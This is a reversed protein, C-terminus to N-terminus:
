QSKGYTYHIWTGVAGTNIVISVALGIGIGLANGKLGTGRIAMLVGLADQLISASVIMETESVAEITKHLPLDALGIAFADPANDPDFSAGYIIVRTGGLTGGGGLFLGKFSGGVLAEVVSHDSKPQWVWAGFAFPLKIGHKGTPKAILFEVGGFTELDVVKDRPKFAVDAGLLGEVEVELAKSGFHLKPIPFSGGFGIELADPWGGFLLAGVGLSISPISALIGTIAIAVGLSAMDFDTGLPDTNDVPNAGAYLYHHLTLPNDTEGDIPDRSVFRGTRPDMDRARLNYLGTAPDLAQGAFQYPNPNTGTHVITQGFADYYYRDTVAGAASTLARVSGLGDDQIYSRDGGQKESILGLGVVYSSQVAGGPAYQELVQAIPVNSDVLNRVEVGDTTTSVLNGDADYQYTVHHTGTADAVDAASLRNRADWLYIAKDVASTIRSLTSGNDDYTFKTVNGVTTETLLRDDQDYTSTTTGDVSDVRQTRNGVPDYTYETTRNGNVPDTVIEEIVRDLLDYHYDVRRGNEQVDADRRGTPGLIYQDRTILVGGATDNEISTLRNLLDYSRTQTSGDALDTTLLNGAADYTYRTVGGDPDTVTAMRNVSDFTYTTTGAPTTVATRRGGADYTYSLVTGDPNTQSLLRDHADYTYRTVGRADTVTSRMGTPTYTYAITTGDALHETIVRNNTDYTDQTTQGDFDTSAVLNGVLDYTMTSRQGLPLVTATRRGGGDYEYRTINGNADTQSVLDGLEDYTYTTRQHLPDVVTTLHNDVDYVYQTTRGLQDTRATVNGAADYTASVTTGDALRMGVARGLVDYTTTTVHGPPDTVSVARGAADYATTTVNGAADTVTLPHGADDYTYSTTHGLEDTRSIVRGAADYGTQLRPNDTPDAPTSDPEIVTVGRNDADYLYQTVRGARDTSSIRNGAADYTSTESTGDPYDTEILRGEPDYKLTTRRGLPDIEATRLGDSNYEYSTRAGTPDTVSLLRGSGGYALSTTLPRPGSPTTQTTTQTLINGDGDYTYTTVVGLPDVQQTEHGSADYEHTTVGGRPNTLSTLNGAADYAYHTVNGAADTMTTLNGRADYTNTTTNGLPDTTTLVEGLGNYTNRTVKGLPDTTTLVRGAADYTYSTTHGFPDTESLLRNQDDFTRRTVNGLADIQTVINGRQDYEYTTPNGLADTVSDTFHTPDYALTVAKGSTNIVNTLRGQDDYTSKSGTRGLPDSVQDLYHPRDARYTLRTTNGDRDTVSTLDGNADYTYTIAHGAPDSASTIRGEPDRQFTVQEGSNSLIGAATFNLQNGNRDSVSELKGSLGDITYVIGDKTTLYFHGGFVPDAPNYPYGGGWDGYTGDDFQRLDASDVTLTDTVGPAAQFAPNVIGLFSGALGGAAQPAFAFSERRGGPVTVFVVTGGQYPNFLGDQEAGTLPVSSRLDTNGYELRWGYGFDGSRASDLTDYTRSVTIPIGNVPLSLDTFSLKFNGLKLNGAVNVTRDLAATHGGTNTASLHLDYSGNALLTPDLTGLVGSAPVTTGSSVHAVPNGDLSLVDIAYSALNGGSITGQIPTPATITAGDALSSIALSPAGTVTPDIVLLSATARGTNGAADTATAVVDFSGAHDFKLRALGNIDLALATGGVTLLESAVGVNDTAAVMFTVTDGIQAPNKDLQVQVTPAETDASVTVDFTQTDSLGRGDDVELAVHATGIDSASTAWTVRGVADIAMGQPGTVLRYTLPVPDPDSAKVDYRYTLGAAVSTVPASTIKPPQPVGLVPLTFQQIAGAGSPDAAEVAVTQSGKEDATPTWSVRGSSSDITMGAPATPLSFTLASGSPSTATVNYTYALGVTAPAPPTSTISPPAVAAGASVVVTFSQTAVGGQGDDVQVSVSQAGAQDAAPVWLILGSAPDITMQAPATPLSFTLADGDPSFARVPYTYLAGVNATTPATSTIMPPLGAARVTVTFSQTAVGGQADDVHVTVAQPGVQNAAPTWRITGQAADISMGAPAADLGWVLTEGQVDTAVANYAYARGVVGTLPPSSTVVPPAIAAMTTVTVTFDQTASDGQGDDVKVEVPNPGLQDATPKWTVRGGSDISMGVPATPLQIHLPLGNADSAQVAYLYTTGLRVTTGPKSTITPPMLTMSAVVPLNFSQSAQGGHGDDVLIAVAATGVQSTTPTWDLVGTSPDITMGAPNTTLQYSLAYGSADQAQVRYEYPLGAVAPGRPTSTIVPSTVPGSVTIDFAQLVVGGQDDQARILVHQVGAEDAGPTWLIIGNTPGIVMGAPAVPLDYTLSRGAPDFAVSEYIYRQGVSASGPPSTTFFPAGTANETNGFDVGPVADGAAITIQFTTRTSDPIIDPSSFALGALGATGAGAITAILKTTATSEDIAFLEPGGTGAPELGGILHDSADIALSTMQGAAIAGVDIVKKTTPDVLLLHAGAVFLTHDDKAALALGSLSGLSFAVTAAGTTTDITELNNSGSGIAYLVGGPAFALGTLTDVGTPGIPTVTGTSLDLRFLDEHSNGPVFGIAYAAQTRPDIALHVLAAGTDVLSVATPTSSYEAIEYLKSTTATGSTQGARGVAFLEQPTRVGGKTTQHWGTQPVEAVTYTGPALGTLAYHGQADTTASPDGPAFQGSGTQDIYVTWGQLGTGDPAQSVTGSISGPELQNGFNVDNVVQGSAVTVHAVGGPPGTQKWGPRPVEAVDYTGPALGTFAYAGSPATTTSPDGADLKGDHNQDIYVTWGSLGPELPVPPVQSIGAPVFNSGEWSSAHLSDSTLPIPQTKLSTGDWSLIYLGGYFEQVLLIDGVSNSFQAAPAGLIRGSGYDVGFFNENAPIVHIDEIGPIGVNYFTAKGTVDIGYFGTRNENPALINGALPGYRAPDNPITTVGELFDHVDAVLHPTGAANVRWVQGANTDVILDGGFVGTNDFQLGGRLLGQGGPLTVWPNLVTAGGNTIRVIQGTQGNGVFLDGPTFGGLNGSRATAIYVEDTFGAVNSFPAHTGDAKIEEFNRPQGGGYNVTAIISNDPEYYDLDIPNNFTTSIQTLKIPTPPANPAPPPTSAVGNRVGDSNLDDFVAGHIEGPLGQSVTLTYSQTDFGGRGDDVRVTVPHPGVDTSTPHWTIAGSSADITMGAPGQPLSFTLPDQDSDVATVPYTYPVPVVGGGSVQGRGALSLIRGQSDHDVVNLGFSGDFINHSFNSSVDTNTLGLTTGFATVTDGGEGQDAPTSSVVFPLFQFRGGNPTLHAGNDSEAMAYLGGGANLFKIIDASRADLINLEAQTLIGGFDSGIVIASYTTGLQDLAANLTSADRLDFDTGATYGSAIIGNVGDVHGGPPSIKAEVFLFKSVGRAVFPNYAPNMVFHIATKTIDQAGTTGPGQTAHFDPDHGTLFISGGQANQPPPLVFSTVPQSTIVPPLNGAQQGVNIAYTQTATGGHGDAVQLTVGTLGLQDESPTWSVLGSTADIDLGQPGTVVSFTLPDGDLDAATAQYTYPVGVAAAVVPTSTFVPPLNPPTLTTTVTFQQVASGGRGDDARIGVNHNGVDSSQPSWSVLGSAVDVSMGAPGTVLTYTLPDGDPDEARSAYRYSAGADAAVVPVTTFAPPENLEGFFVLDYTFRVGHPDSFALSLTGTTNGPNLAGGNILGTFDYYAIGDATTGAQDRVRVSPDSIHEVGVYLPAGVPYQGVNRVAVDGYVVGTGNDLSTRAYGATFSASVDALASLDPAGAPRAVGSVTLSAAATHGQDDTAQVHIPNQGPAVTLTTFYDGAADLAEVQTGNVTVSVVRGTGGPSARGSALVTQGPALTAGAAPTAVSVALGSSNPPSTVPGGTSAPSGLTRTDFAAVAPQVALAAALVSGGALAPAPAPSPAFPADVCAIRVSTAPGSGSADGDNNVLRFILTGTTGAAVGSLDVTVTQGSLTTGQGLAAPQGETLNFFADRNGAFTPVLPRGQADVLAAEFADNMRGNNSIDFSPGSYMFSLSSAGAGIVVPRSLTVDFSDGEDLVADTGQVTVTGQGSATGGDQHVTWGTLGSVFSCTALTFSFESPASVNGAKDTAQFHVTHSGDATGDLPLQTTVNFHGSPDFAVPVFPGLDVQEQLAAVGSLNDAVTGAITINTTTTASAAPSQVSVVPAQTDLTFSDTAAASTNGRTDVAQVSVTHGKDASGDQPLGTPFSFSGTASDFTVAFPTGSDVRAQLTAVPNSGASVQGRITVDHNTLAEQAPATIVVTPPQSPTGGSTGGSSPTPSPAPTPQPKNRIAGDLALLHGIRHHFRDFREPDISRRWRLYNFYPTSPLLGNTPVVPRKFLKLLSNSAHGATRLSNAVAPDSLRNLILAALRPDDPTIRIGGPVLTFSISTSHSHVSVHTNRFAVAAPTPNLNPRDKLLRIPDITAWDGTAAASRGSSLM